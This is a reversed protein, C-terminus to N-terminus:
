AVTKLKILPRAIYLHTIPRKGEFFEKRYGTGNTSPQTSWYDVNTIIKDTLIVSHGSPKPQNMRWIQALDGAKADKYDKIEIALGRPVLAEVPGTYDSLKRDKVVYNFIKQKIHIVDQFTGLDVNMAMAARLYAETVLGCCYTEKKDNCDLILRGEYYVKQTAGDFGAIWKYPNTGDTPYEKILELIKQNLTEM